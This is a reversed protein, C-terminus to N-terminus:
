SSPRCSIKFSPEDSFRVIEPTIGITAYSEKLSGKHGWLEGSYKRPIRIQEPGAGLEKIRSFLYLYLARSRISQGLAPHVPGAIINENLGEESAVGIRIVHINNKWLDLLASSLEKETKALSWPRYKGAKYLKELATGKVTLCPYIRVADPKLRITENIDHQFDGSKSGPLGPLLQIGLSLGANRVATCAQVATEPAYNRASRKLTYASFSQIGLEIMDLGNEKLLAIDKENICDPRTSCRVKTIYGNKKHQATLDIFKRQWEFPLATFTGGFFALELPNRKKIAFFAPIEEKIAQYIESLTKAGTGTQRNQSCYVCRSPCGMFPMFVPWIRTKKHEPEPHNFTTINM